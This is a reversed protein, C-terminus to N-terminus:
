SDRLSELVPFWEGVVGDRYWALNSLPDRFFVCMARLRNEAPRQFDPHYPPRPSWGFPVTLQLVSDGVGDYSFGHNSGDNYYGVINSGDIGRAITSSAGPVDLTTYTYEAQASVGIFMTLFGVVASILFTKM